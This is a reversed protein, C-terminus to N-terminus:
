SIIVEERIKSGRRIQYLQDQMEVNVKLPHTLQCYFPFCDKISTYNNNKMNITNKRNKRKSMMCSFSILIGKLDFTISCM